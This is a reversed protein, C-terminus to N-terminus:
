KKIILKQTFNSNSGQGKIIYIGNNLNSVNITTGNSITETTELVKRGNADFIQINVKERISSSSLTVENKAPNPYVNIATTNTKLDNTSLKCNAPVEFDEVQDNLGTTAGIKSGASANVGLGRKAFVDWILCNDKAGNAKDAALIADRGDIFTPSCSQLKLGDVVLQLVKASGSNPNALVDSSYGYKEAFKWHLDWLMTAWVFGVSHVNVVTQNNSNIYSMGNTKGYTYNNINFDPSYKAPRIGLGDTQEGNAFTGMGRAINANDGPRNTLMLAFFDSWGEGMQENSLNTNLCSYGNGTLRNSIGHGYEHIIIGNDLSADLWIYKSKDDQYTVNVNTDDNIKSLISQGDQYTILTSPITITNDDGGMTGFAQTENINYIVAAKAGANQANKVKVTFNCSGREIFAIKGTLDNTFETCGDAPSSKILDSTVEESSYPGFSASQTQINLNILDFPENFKLRQPPSVPDWVYMQMRPASGDRPTAFNANNLYDSSNKGYGDRAEANVADNGSGSNEFNNQQFNRASETFGFKYFVDHIKNNAYFLNTIAADRYTDLTSNIDLPYDFILSSGADLIYSPTNVSNIDEYAFVNNGRTITFSNTGDSHWGEPSASLDWPNSILQRNGFTPAEIPFPFVNYSADSANFVDLNQNSKEKRELLKEVNHNHDSHNNHSFTGEEFECFVTLNEKVLIEKTDVDILIHWYNSSNLEQFNFEMALILKDNKPFYVLETDIPDSNNSQDNLKYKLIDKSDISSLITGLLSEALKEKDLSTKQNKKIKSSDFNSKFNEKAYEIKENKILFTSTAQYIPISNFTQQVQLVNGKLSESNDINSIIFEKTSLSENKLISSNSNLYDSIIAEYNQANLSSFTLFSSLILIKLSTSKKNM